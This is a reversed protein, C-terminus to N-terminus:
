KKQRYIKAAQNAIFGRPLIKGALALLKNQFGPVTLAPTKEYVRIAAKAVQEVPALNKELHSMAPIDTMETKIGGPAFISVSVGTGALEERLSLGFNVLFAKTGAYVSQYPVPVMGALSAVILIRGQRAQLKPLLSRVLQLNASINTQILALDTELDGKAFDDAFTIGANLILGELDDISQCFMEIATQDSLDLSHGTILDRQSLSDLRARRRGTAIINNGRGALQLALEHGLGSTAGTILINPPSDM